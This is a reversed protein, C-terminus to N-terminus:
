GQGLTGWERRFYTLPPADPRLVDAEQVEGVYITHDGASLSDVRICDLFALGDAFVPAGTERKRVQETEFPDGHDVIGAFHEGLHRQDEALVNVCFQETGSELREYTETEHDICVLVLPPRLSVSAFCNVTIGHMPDPLTVVTVGTAFNSMVTKFRESDVM